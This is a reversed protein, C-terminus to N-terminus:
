EVILERWSIRRMNAGPPQTPVPPTNLCESGSCDGQILARIFGSGQVLVPGTSLYDGLKFGALGDTGEVYGGTQYDLFYSYSVGTPVCAGSQPTNTSFVLTGDVLRMNTSVREGAVPLDVYWGDKTAWDVTNKTVNVIAQGEICYTSDTPCTDVEGDGDADSTMVQKVFSGSATTRPDGYDANNLHDKIAYISQTGATSLDSAGLLQGTGIFVVPQNKIMGLEPRSTIPQATGGADKLTALRQAEYGASDIIDNIDFRWLNGLLDGGYVRQATNNFMPYNAWAAIKALGSPTATNGVGTSISRILTGSDADLVFLRGEGDGPSTNNYGSAVLVVWTGDTLKTIVPNGYTYGLDDNTFEWLGQPNAPNTVDLAYYGRGGRNAGGVLITKWESTSSEPGCNSVCIDGMVPTGDVFFHHLNGYNKDALQYLEPMIFGPVYAWSEEGSEANFAHLMGDNAGVYVIGTRTATTAKFDSYGPDAYSWPSKKVYVAESGVIDGLVSARQRFYKSTTNALGENTRDGRLFNVLNEEDAADQAESPLCITGTSCLQTLGSIHPKRFYEKQESTLNDWTFLKLKSSASADFTHITRTLYNKSDLKSQASWGATITLSGDTEVISYKRVQGTWSGATFSIQFLATDGAVLNPSTVTVAALAGDKVMVEQLASSIGAAMASPDDASFYTGRGNVAAHWLDDINTQENSIPKPWNCEGYKQWSCNGLAADSGQKISYFDGSTATKYDSQFQMVGSAGLGLTYTNMMQRPALSSNNTCVDNHTTTTGSTVPGGTCNLLTPDRLDTKWYYEAVDALTDPTAGKAVINCITKVYSNAAIPEVPTCTDVAVPATTVDTCSTQVGNTDTGDECEAVSFPLSPNPVLARCSTTLGNSDTGPNCTVGSSLAPPTAASAPLPPSWDSATITQCQKLPDSPDCSSANSWTNPWATQCQTTADPTCSAANAWQTWVTQCQTATLVTYPSTTSQPVGGPPNPCTGDTWGTWATYQCQIDAGTTCSGSTVDIWGNPWTTQCERANNVTYNPYTSQAIPTCSATNYWAASVRYRCETSGFGGTGGTSNATCTGPDPVDAWATWGTSCTVTPGPTCSAVATPTGWVPQCERAPGTYSPGTSPTVATCSAVNTWSSWGAYQCQTQTAGSTVETCSTQTTWSGYNVRCDKAQTVVYPNSTSKAITTCAPDDSWASWSGYQCGVTSSSTCTSSTDAWPTWQNSLCQRAEAVTYPSSTSQSVPTCSDVNTYSSWDSYRCQTTASTTCSDVNNWTGSWSTQCDVATGVSYPSATSKAVATCSAVNAWSTASSYQCESKTNYTTTENDGGPNNVVTNGANVTCSSVGTWSGVALTQCQVRNIGSTVPTCSAVNTWGTWSVGGNSSNRQQVQTLRQQLQYTRSQLQGIQSQLQSTRQQTQTKTRTQLNATRSQLPGTRMQLNNTRQQYHDITAALNVTHHREQLKYEQTQWQATKSQLKSTRIQSQTFTRKQLQGTKSQLQETKTQIWTAATPTLTKKKQLTSQWAQGAGADLMPREELGPGDQDGVPTTGNIQFGAGQNWYGDTSLITVNPQCYYQVPDIVTVGNLSTFKGAYLRGAQSLAVRLPTDATASDSRYPTAAFLKDYWSKKQSGDFESINQFDSGTNNNISFYGIRYKDSIPEFSRSAATKMAQMRTRYYAWWNAYNTMEEEYTCITGACDTRKSSKPYSTTSATIVTLLNEGPVQNAVPKTFANTTLGMSGSKSISPTATTVGPASITIVSSGTVEARYGAIQCSGTISFTCANISDAIDSALTAPLSSAAITASLVEKGDIKISTVSTAGSGTITLSSIRPAPMRPFTYSTYGGSTGIQIAQCAGATPTSAVADAATKCWRLKAAEPHAADQTTGCNKLTRDTCFEGPTTTYYFASGVLNSTAPLPPKNQIGYGDNKVAAWGSTATTTQSPYTTTDTTGSSTFYRPPVYTVEPNYAVGNFSPNRSQYLYTTAGAWDPLYDLEMSLSDDMVFLINPRIETSTAGSLPSESLDTSAALAIFPLALLSALASLRSPKM